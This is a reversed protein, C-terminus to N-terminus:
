DDDEERRRQEELYAEYAAQAQATKLLNQVYLQEKNRSDWDVKDAKPKELDNIKKEWDLRAAEVAENILQEQEAKMLEEKMMEMDNGEM